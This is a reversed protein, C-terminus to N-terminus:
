ETTSVQIEIAQIFAETQEITSITDSTVFLDGSTSVTELCLNTYVSNCAPVAKRINQFPHM